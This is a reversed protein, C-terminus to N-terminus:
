KQNRLKRIAILSVLTTLFSMIAGISYIAQEWYARDTPYTSMASFSAVMLFGNVCYITVFSFIIAVWWLLKKRTENSM